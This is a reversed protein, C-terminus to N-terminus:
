RGAAQETVIFTVLLVISSHLDPLILSYVVITDVHIMTIDYKKGKVRETVYVVVGDCM